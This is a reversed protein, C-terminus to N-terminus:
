KEVLKQQVLSAGFKPVAHHRESDYWVSPQYILVIVIETANWYCFRFFYTGGGGSLM